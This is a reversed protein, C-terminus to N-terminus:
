MIFAISACTETALTAVFTSISTRRINLQRFVAWQNKRKYQGRWHLSLMEPSMIDGYEASFRTEKGVMWFCIHINVTSLGNRRVLHTAPIPKSLCHGIFTLLKHAYPSSNQWWLQLGSRTEVILPLLSWSTAVPDKLSSYKNSHPDPLLYVRSRQSWTQPLGAYVFADDRQNYFEAFPSHERKM